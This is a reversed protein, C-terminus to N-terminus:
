DEFSGLVMVETHEKDRFHLDCVAWPTSEPATHPPDSAEWFKGSCGLEVM